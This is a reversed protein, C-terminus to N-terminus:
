REDYRFGSRDTRIDEVECEVIMGGVAGCLGSTTATFNFWKEVWLTSFDIM